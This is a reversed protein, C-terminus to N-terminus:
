PEHRHGLCVRGVQILGRLRGMLLQFTAGVKARKCAGLINSLSEVTLFCLVMGLARLKTRNLTRHVIMFRNFLDDEAAVVPSVRGSPAHHHAMRADPCFLLRGVRALKIGLDVDENMTCRHLFFDSFGGTQEYASRRVLSNSTGLWEIPRAGNPVPNYGFRLLPGVVRGQWAGDAVGLIRRLYFRWARTPMPWVQNSFNAMVGAVGPQNGVAFMRQLCDPELAVDDDLLLLWEGRSAAMAARRQRVANPPRVPLARVCLGAEHWCKERVLEAIEDGSSADAVLVEDLKTTQAILTQLLRRLSNPRGITPVIASIAGSHQEANPDRSM